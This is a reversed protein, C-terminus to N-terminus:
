QCERSLDTDIELSRDPICFGPATNPLCRSSVKFVYIGNRGNECTVSARVVSRDNKDFAIAKIGRVPLSHETTFAVVMQMVQKSYMWPAENPGASISPGAFASSSLSLGILAHLIQKKMKFVEQHSPSYREM